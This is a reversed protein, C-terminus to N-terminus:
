LGVRDLFESIGDLQALNWSKHHRVFVLAGIRWEVAEHLRALAEDTRGLAAYVSAFDLHLAM